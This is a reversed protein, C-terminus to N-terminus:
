GNSTIRAPEILVAARRQAAMVRDYEDWDEHTGGAGRFVARLLSPVSEPPVGDLPDDPGAIRVSGEVAVWEWGSRWVVTAMGSRRMHTLKRTGGAAVLGVVLRGTVPDDLIGANVLSAHVSGDARTTAVVALWHDAAGLRRVLDLDAM